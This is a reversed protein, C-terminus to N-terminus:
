NQNLHELMFIGSSDEWVQKYEIVEKDSNYTTVSAMYLQRSKIVSWQVISECSVSVIHKLMGMCKYYLYFFVAQIIQLSCRLVGGCDMHKSM